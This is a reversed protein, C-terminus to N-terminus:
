GRNDMPYLHFEEAHCLLVEMMERDRSGKGGARMMGEQGWMSQGGRETLLYM